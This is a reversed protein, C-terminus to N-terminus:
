NKQYPIVGNIFVKPIDQAVPETDPALDSLGLNTLVIQKERDSLIQGEEFKVARNVKEIIHELIDYLKSM